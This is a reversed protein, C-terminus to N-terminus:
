GGKFGAALYGALLYRRAVVLLIVSPAALLVSFVAGVPEPYSSVLTYMLVPLTTVDPAGVILTAQAEDLSGLFTLILAVLIGPLAIPLTVTFFVQLPSAGVDRAAEEMERPVAAFAAAPIWTMVVLTNMLQVLVVGWFTGILGFRFFFAAIAIYLGIRPFANAALLAVYFPRKLPFEFRAFAYAAPLCILAALLTVTPATTFSWFAAKSVDANQFVWTWWRLGFQQPVLGPFNWREAVAWLLLTWLPLLLFAGFALVFILALSRRLPASRLFWTPSIM